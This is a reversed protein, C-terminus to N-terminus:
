PSPCLDEPLHEYKERKHLPSTSTVSSALLVQNERQGKIGWGWDRDVSDDAPLMDGASAIALAAPGHHPSHRLQKPDM